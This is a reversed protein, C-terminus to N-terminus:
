PLNHTQSTFEISLASSSTMKTILVTGDKRVVKVYVFIKNNDTSEFTLNFTLPIQVLTKNGTVGGIPLVAAYIIEKQSTGVYIPSYRIVSHLGDFFDSFPTPANSATPIELEIKKDYVVHVEVGYVEDSVTINQIGVNLTVPTYNAIKGTLDKAADMTLTLVPTSTNGSNDTSGSPAAVPIVVTAKPTPTPKNLGLAEKQKAIRASEEALKKLTEALKLKTEEAEKKKAAEVAKKAEELKKLEADKAKKLAEDVGATKDLPVIKSLDLKQKPDTISKNVDDIIKNIADKDVKKDEIAQNVVNGILNNLNQTVKDLATLDKTTLSSDADGRSIDTNEGKAIKDKQDAIFAANEEDISKKDKVIAQIIESSTEKVLKQPDIIAVKNELDDVESRSDLSLQQSAAILIKKNKTGSKDGSNNEQSEDNTQASVTGAAVAVYTEGTESNVSTIVKTGRVAMVATPTEVEYDDGGSLKKVNSWVSGAFMKIKSKKGKGKDALTTISMVANAGITFEDEHDKIKVKVSSNADTTIYDGQSLGMDIYADYERSGGSSKVTASGTLETIVAVRSSKGQAPTTIATSILTLLFTAIVIVSLNRKFIM